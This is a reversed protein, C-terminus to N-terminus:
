CKKLKKVLGLKKITSGLTNLMENYPVTNDSIHEEISTKDPVNFFVYRIQHKVVECFNNWSYILGTNIPLSHFGKKCWTLDPLSDIIVSLLKENETIPDIEERILEYTTFVEGQWGGDESRYPVCENLADDYFYYISERILELLSFLDISKCKSSCFDCKKNISNIKVFNDIYYDFICKYCVFTNKQKEIEMKSNIEELIEVSSGM